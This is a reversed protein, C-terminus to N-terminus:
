NTLEFYWEYSVAFILHKTRRFKSLFAAAIQCGSHWWLAVMHCRRPASMLSICRRRLHTNKAATDTSLPMPWKPFFIEYQMIRILNGTTGSIPQKKSLLITSAGRLPFCSMIVVKSALLGITLRALTSYLFIVWNNLDYGHKVLQRFDDIEELQEM